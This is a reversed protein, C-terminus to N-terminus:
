RKSSKLLEKINFFIPDLCDNCTKYEPRYNDLLLFAKMENFMFIQLGSVLAISYYRM